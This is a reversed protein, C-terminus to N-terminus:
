KKFEDFFEPEIKGFLYWTGSSKRGGYDLLPADRIIEPMKEIDQKQDKSFATLSIHKSERVQSFFSEVDKGILNKRLIGILETARCAEIIKGSSDVVLTFSLPEKKEQDQFVCITGCRKCKIEIFSVFLFGKLLLKGCRCRYEALLNSKM